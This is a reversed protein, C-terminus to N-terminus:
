WDPRVWEGHTIEEARRARNCRSHSARLRAPDYAFQPHTSVPYAHDAEFSNPEYRKARYDIVGGGM